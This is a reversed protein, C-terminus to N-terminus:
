PSLQFVTGVGRAGGRFTTGFLKGGSMLLGATPGGGDSGAFSYLVAATWAGGGVGPPMLKFVTGQGHAGGRDTTGYLVGSGDLIVGGIPAGGDQGTTFAADFTHLVTETWPQGAAPAPTLKFAVGSARAGGWRTTGYLAGTQDLVVGAGPLGGDDKGTFSYLVTEPWAAAGGPTLMFVTGFGHAGGYSTTGFLRNGPGLTVGAFPLEGDGGGTFSYLVTQAWADGARVLRFVTGRGRAGGSLTTGYLAGAADSVVGAVPSGGDAAGSFSYLVREIWAAGPVAPPTLEFVTGQGRAGGSLTTGYLRGAAGFVVGALPHAGDAAGSFTYLVRVGGPGAGPMLEFVIGAGSAGGNPATGYLAGSPGLSLGAYPSGGDAGNTFHQLVTETWALAPTQRAGATQALVACGFVALVRLVSGDGRRRM